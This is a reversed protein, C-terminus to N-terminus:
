GGPDGPAESLDVAAACSINVDARHEACDHRGINEKYDNRSLARHDICHGFSLRRIDAFTSCARHPRKMVVVKGERHKENHNAVVERHGITIFAVPPKKKTDAGRTGEGAVVKIELM